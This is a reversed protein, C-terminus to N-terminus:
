SHHKRRWYQIIVGTSFSSELASHYAELLVRHSRNVNPIKGQDLISCVIIRQCHSTGNLVSKENLSFVSM